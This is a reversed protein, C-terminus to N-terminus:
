PSWACLTFRRSSEFTLAFIGRGLASLGLHGRVPLSRAEGCGQAAHLLM